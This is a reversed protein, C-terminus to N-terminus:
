CCYFLRCDSAATACAGCGSTRGRCQRSIITLQGGSGGAHSRGSCAPAAACASASSPSSPQCRQAGCLWHAPSICCRSCFGCECTVHAATCFGVGASCHPRAHSWPGSGVRSLEQPVRPGALRTVRVMMRRASQPCVVAGSTPRHSVRGAVALHRRRPWPRSFSDTISLSCFSCRWESLVCLSAPQLSRRLNALQRGSSLPESPLASLQLNRSATCQLACGQCLRGSRVIPEVYRVATPRQAQEGTAGTSDPVEDVSGNPDRNSGSLREVEM